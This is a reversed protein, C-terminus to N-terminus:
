MFTKFDKFVVLCETKKKFKLEKFAQKIKHARLARFLPIIKQINHLAPQTTLFLERKVAWDVKGTEGITMLHPDHCSWPYLCNLHTEEAPPSPVGKCIPHRQWRPPAWLPATAREQQSFGASTARANIRSAKQVSGQFPTGSGGRDPNPGLSFRPCVPPLQGSSARSLRPIGGLSPPPLKRPYPLRPMEAWFAAELPPLCHIAAHTGIWTSNMYLYQLVLVSYKYSICPCVTQAQSMQAPNRFWSWLRSLGAASFRLSSMLFVCIRRVLLLVWM